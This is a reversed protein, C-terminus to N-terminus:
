YIRHTGDQSITGLAPHIEPAGNLGIQGLVPGIVAGFAAFDAESEWVDVVTFGGAEEYCAHSLRKPQELIPSGGLEFVREYSARDGDPFRFVAAIAM